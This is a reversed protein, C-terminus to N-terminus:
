SFDEKRLLVQGGAAGIVLLQKIEDLSHQFIVDCLPDCQAFSKLMRKQLRQPLALLLAPDRQQLEERLSATETSQM